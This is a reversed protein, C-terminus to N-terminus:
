PTYIKTFVKRDQMTGDGLQGESNRGAAYVLNDNKIIVSHYGSGASMLVNDTITVPSSQNIINGNGLQGNGNLGSAM